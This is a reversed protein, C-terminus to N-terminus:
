NVLLMRWSNVRTKDIIFCFERSLKFFDKLLPDSLSVRNPLNLSSPDLIFQCLLQENEVINEFNINNKTSGSLTKIEELLCNREVEMGTCTSIVHSVTENKGSTCIRCRASCGSQDAKMQYTLYNGALFKIHPRAQKVEKTTIINALAPHHRGRLGTTTVHLYEM